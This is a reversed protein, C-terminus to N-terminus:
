LKHKQRYFRCQLANVVSEYFDDDLNEDMLVLYLINDRVVALKLSLFSPLFLLSYLHFHSNDSCFQFAALDDVEQSSWFLCHLCRYFVVSFFSLFVFVLIIRMMVMM